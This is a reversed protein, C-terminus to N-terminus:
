TVDQVEKDIETKNMLESINIFNELTDIIRKMKDVVCWRRQFRTSDSGKIFFYSDAEMIPELTSVFEQIKIKMIKSYETLNM